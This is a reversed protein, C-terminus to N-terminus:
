KLEKVFPLKLVKFQTIAIKAIENAGLESLHTNDTKGDPFYSNEGQAFHLHLKKSGEVGYQLELLETFYQLDILPVQYEQAM